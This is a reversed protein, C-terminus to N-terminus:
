GAQATDSVTHQCGVCLPKGFKNESYEKEKETIVLGCDYCAVAKRSKTVRSRNTVTKVTIAPIAATKEQSIDTTTKEAPNPAAEKLPSIEQATTSVSDEPVDPQTVNRVEMDRRMNRSIAKVSETLRAIVPIEEDTLFRDLSFIAQTYEIGGSNVAKNLSFKTVM